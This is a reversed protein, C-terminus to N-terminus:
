ETLEKPRDFRELFFKKRKERDLKIHEPDFDASENAKREDRWQTANYNNFPLQMPIKGQEEYMELEEPEPANVARQMKIIEERDHEDDDLVQWKKVTGKYFHKKKEAIQKAGWQDEIWSELEVVTQRFRADGEVGVLDRDKYVHTM